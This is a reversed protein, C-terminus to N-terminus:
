TGPFIKKKKALINVGEARDSPLVLLMTMLRTKYSCGAPQRVVPLLTMYVYRVM